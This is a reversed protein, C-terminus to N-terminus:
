RQKHKHAGKARALFYHRYVGMGYLFAVAEEAEAIAAQEQSTSLIDINAYFISIIIASTIANGAILGLESRLFPYLSIDSNQWLYLSGTYMVFFPVPSRATILM